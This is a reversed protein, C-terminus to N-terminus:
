EIYRVKLKKEEISVNWVYDPVSIVTPVVTSDANAQNRFNVAVDFDEPDIQDLFRTEVFFSVSVEEEGVLRSSDAPFNIKRLPVDMKRLDFPEVGFQVVVSEPSIEVMEDNSARVSITAQYDQNIEKKPIAITLSDSFYNVFSSPGWLTISDPQVSLPTSLRHRPALSINLSDIKVAVKKSIRKEIRLSLTDTVIYNLTLEELQDAIEPVLSAGIIYKRETPQDLRITLPNIKFWLTKRLLNWGGGTVDIRIRSPLEEVVVVGQEEFEFEIPYNLRTTYADNLANFFWFITAAILCLAVIKWNEKKDSAFLQSIWAFIEKFKEM